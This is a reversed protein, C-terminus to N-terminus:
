MALCSATDVFSSQCFLLTITGRTKDLGNRGLMRQSEFGRWSSLRRVLDGAIEQLAQLRSVPGLRGVRQQMADCFGAIMEEVCVKTGRGGPVDENAWM